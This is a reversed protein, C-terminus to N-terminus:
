TGAYGIQRRGFSPLGERLRVTDHRRTIGISEWQALPSHVPAGPPERSWRSRTKLAASYREAVSANSRTRLSPIQVGVTM